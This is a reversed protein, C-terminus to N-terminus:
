RLDKIMHLAIFGCGQCVSISCAFGPGGMIVDGSIANDISLVTVRAFVERVTDTAPRMASACFPCREHDM